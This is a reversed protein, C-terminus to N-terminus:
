YGWSKKFIESVILLSDRFARTSHIIQKRHLLHEQKSPTERRQTAWKGWISLPGQNKLEDQLCFSVDSTHTEETKGESLYTEERLLSNEQVGVWHSSVPYGTSVPRGWESSLLCGTPVLPDAGKLGAYWVLVRLFTSLPMMAWGLHRFDVWVTCTLIFKPQLM